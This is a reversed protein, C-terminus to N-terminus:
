PETLGQPEIRLVTQDSFTADSGFLGTIFQYDYEVYVGIFDLDQDNGDSDLFYAVRDLPCWNHDPAPADDGDGDADTCDFDIQYYTLDGATYSNCEGPVGSTKCADPVTDDPSDAEFIVIRQIDDRSIAAFSRDIATLIHYDAELMDGATSATRAGQSTANTVTLYSRFLFGFELIGLLLIFFPLSVIAGEIIATGDDGRCRRATVSPAGRSTV